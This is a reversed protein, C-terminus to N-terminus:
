SASVDSTGVGETRGSTEAERGEGSGWTGRGGYMSHEVRAVGGGPLPHKVTIENISVQSFMAWFLSAFTQQLSFM